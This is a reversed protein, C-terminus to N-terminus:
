KVGREAQTAVLLPNHARRQFGVVIAEDGNARAAEQIAKARHNISPCTPRSSHRMTPLPLRGTKRGDHGHPYAAPLSAFQDSARVDLPVIKWDSLINLLQGLRVYARLQQYVDRLRHIVAL